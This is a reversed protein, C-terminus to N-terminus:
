AARSFVLYVCGNLFAFGSEGPECLKLKTPWVKEQAFERSLEFRAPDEFGGYNLVVVVEDDGVQVQWVFADLLERDSMSVGVSLFDAFGEVDLAAEESIRAVENEATAKALRLEALRGSVEAYPMGDEVARMVNEIRREAESLRSRAASLMADVRETTMSEAVDRAIELTTARSSLMRRLEAVVAPEIWDARVPKCGCRKSCRYYSYKVGGHGRGSVGVLNSGCGLCVGKGAFAYDGWDETERRKRAPRRSGMEFEGRTLIAPMGGEVRTDGFSYVGVYKENRLMGAVMSHSCPRHHSTEVGRRALDAAISNASEGAARRAFVERVVEAEAPDVEYTGDEAFRYGYVRVGNHMCKLANGRMGRRVRQAIHASEVAAVGEYVKELLIAEPGDPMSETASVVRCGADRLRKKYVPADYPDRSFRDMMYVVAVEAEGANDVMRQFQPRDDSRGSRAFDSYTGVVRYGNATCWETCARLQDEISAERQKSCSFRAYIVATGPPPSGRRARRRM